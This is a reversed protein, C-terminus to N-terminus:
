QMSTLLLLLNSISIIIIITIIIIIIIFCYLLLYIFLIYPLNHVDKPPFLFNYILFLYFLLSILLFILLYSTERKGDQYNDLNRESQDVDTVDSDALITFYPM